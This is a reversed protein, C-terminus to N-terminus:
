ALLKEKLGINTMRKFNKREERENERYYHEPYVLVATSQINYVVDAMDVLCEKLSEKHRIAHSYTSFCTFYCWGRKVVEESVLHFVVDNFLNQQRVYTFPLPTRRMTDALENLEEHLYEPIKPKRYREGNPPHKYLIKRMLSVKRPHRIRKKYYSYQRAIAILKRIDYLRIVMNYLTMGPLISKTETYESKVELLPKSM